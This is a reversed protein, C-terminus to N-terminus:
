PGEGSSTGPEVDRFLARQRDTWHVAVLTYRMPQWQGDEDRLYDVVVKGELDLVGALQGASELGVHLVVRNSSLSPAIAGWRKKNDLDMARLQIRIHDHVETKTHAELDLVPPIEAVAEPKLTLSPQGDLRLYADPDRRLVRVVRSSEPLLSPNALLVRKVAADLAEPSVDLQQAGINIVQSHIGTLNPLDARETPLAQQSDCHTLAASTILILVLVGFGVKKSLLKALLPHKKAYEQVLELAKEDSGFYLKVVWDFVGSGTAEYRVLEAGVRLSDLDPFLERLVDKYALLIREYSKIFQALEPTTPMRSPSNSLYAVHRESAIATDEGATM